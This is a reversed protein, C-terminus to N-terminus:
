VSNIVEPEIYCPWRCKDVIGIHSYFSPFCALLDSNHCGDQQFLETKSMLGAIIDTSVTGYVPYYEVCEM